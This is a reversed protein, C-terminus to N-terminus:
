LRYDVLTGGPVLTLPRGPASGEGDPGETSTAGAPAAGGTRGRHDAPAEGSFQGTSTGSGNPDVGFAVGSPDSTTGALDVVFGETALGRARLVGEIHEKGRLLADGTAAHEVQFQLRLNRGDRAQIQLVVQGLEPPNLRLVMAVHGARLDQGALYDLVQTPVNAAPAASGGPAVGAAQGFPSAAAPL